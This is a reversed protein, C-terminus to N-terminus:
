KQFTKKDTSFIKKLRQVDQMVYCEEREPHWMWGEMPLDQHKIAEIEGDMSRALVEFNQPLSKVSFNHFSNVERKIKGKLSHRSKVHGSIEHLRGNARSAMVQMGRCIGLVPMKKREAYDLLMNETLDRDPYCGINAGGSLIIGSPSIKELWAALRIKRLNPDDIQSFLNNPIPVPLYGCYQIFHTLRQDVLDVRSRREECVRVSQSIVVFIM